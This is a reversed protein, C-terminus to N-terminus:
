TKIIISKENILYDNYLKEKEADTRALKLGEIIREFEKMYEPTLRSTPGTIVSHSEDNKQTSNGM